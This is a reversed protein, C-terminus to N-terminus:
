AVLGDQELISLHQRIGTTTLSLERSLDRVTAERHMRLYDLIAQRTSQMQYSRVPRFWSCPLFRYARLDRTM